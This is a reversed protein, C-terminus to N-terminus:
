VEKGNEQEQKDKLPFRIIEAPVETAITILANLALLLNERLTMRETFDKQYEASRIYDNPRSKIKGQIESHKIAFDWSLNIIDIKKSNITTTHGTEERITNM